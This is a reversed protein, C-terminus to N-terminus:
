LLSERMSASDGLLIFAMLKDFALKSVQPRQMEDREEDKGKRKQAGADRRSIKKEKGGASKM